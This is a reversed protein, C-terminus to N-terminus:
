EVRKAVLFLRGDEIYNNCTSLTILEDEYSIDIEQGLINMKEINARFSEFEEPTSAGLYNYYRFGEEDQYKVEALCVAIIDYKRKEYLTNFQIQPHEQLYKEDQYEKLGGFMLGSRMNHGYLILNKDGNDLQNRADLFISGNSDEEKSFNHKLYYKNDTTQLVPQDINTDPITIWGVMEENQQKLEVYEPLITRVVPEEPLVPEEAAPEEEQSSVGHAANAIYEETQSLKRREQLEMLEKNKRYEIFEAGIFYGFCVIAALVCIIGVLRRPSRTKQLSTLYPEEGVTEKYDNAIMDSLYLLYDEGVKTQFRIDDQRILTYLRLAVGPEKVDVEESIYKIKKVDALGKKYETYSDFQFKGISYISKM